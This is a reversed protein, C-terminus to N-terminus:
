IWVGERGLADALMLFDQATNIKAPTRRTLRGVLMTDHYLSIRWVGNIPTQAIYM